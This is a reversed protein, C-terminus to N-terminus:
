ANFNLELTDENNFVAYSMVIKLQNQDVNELVELNKVEVEPFYTSLSDTVRKYIIDYTRDTLQEFLIDKLGM